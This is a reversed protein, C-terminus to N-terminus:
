LCGTDFDSCLEVVVTTMAIITAVLAGTAPARHHVYHPVRSPPSVLDSKAEPVM